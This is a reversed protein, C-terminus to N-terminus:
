LRYKLVIIVSSLTSSKICPYSIINTFLGTQWTIYNTCRLHSQNWFINSQKIKIHFLLMCINERLKLLKKHMTYIQIWTIHKTYSSAIQHTQLIATQFGQLNAYSIGMTLNNLICYFRLSSLLPNVAMKHM